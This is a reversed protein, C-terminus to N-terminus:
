RIIMLKLSIVKKRQHDLRLIYIGEPLHGIDHNADSGRARYLTRGHLDSLSIEWEGPDEPPPWDVQFYDMAPNPFISVPPSDLGPLGASAVIKKGMVPRLMLSGTFSTNIWDQGINYFIKESSNIFRDFGVNLITETTKIWGVYFIDSLVLVTDLEYMTFANLEDAFEPRIGENSYLLDGPQNLAEDHDWVALKFYNNTFDGLTRNFYMQVARLTDPKFTKFRCAVMGGFTGEGRLGYGNEASGDDYAYYDSFVQYRIVTDNGKFDQNETILYSLVQFVASDAEYFVFPYVYPIQFQNYVGPAVNAAGGNVSDSVRTNLDTIKLIRTINRTTTDINRYSIGVTPQIETLRAIPFHTWPISQYSKLLSPLPSIMSVDHLATISESRATDLYVYDIHWHDVNSRKDQSFPDGPLSAYNKFRFRFGKKLYKSEQVPIFVQRFSDAELGEHSWVREWRGSDPEWFEVMLSDWNEPNDGIGTPQYFFSLYIDNRSPYDLNIHSSTLFDSEFPLDGSGNLVGESDVADLTAVGITVQDLTYSNNIYADDDSWLGVDPYNGRGSFDDFFPLEITDPPYDLQSSKRDSQQHKSSNGTSLPVLVEQSLGPVWCVM